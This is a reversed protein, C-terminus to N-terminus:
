KNQNLPKNASFYFGIESEANTLELQTPGKGPDFVFLGYADNKSNLDITESSRDGKIFQLYRVNKVEIIKIGPWHKGLINHVYRLQYFYEHMSSEYVNKETVAKIKELQLSDPSYFVASRFEIKLTDPYSSPPKSKNKVPIASSAPEKTKNGNNCCIITLSLIIIIFTSLYKKM